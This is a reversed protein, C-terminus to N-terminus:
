EAKKKLIDSHDVDFTLKGDKVSWKFNTEKTLER